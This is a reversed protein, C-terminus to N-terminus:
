QAAAKKGTGLIYGMLGGVLVWLVTSSIVDVIVLKFPYLNMSGWVYLDMSLSVPLTIILAATMGGIITKIGAWRHFIFAFLFAWLINNIIIVIMDPTEKMLGEYPIVNSEFYDMLLIGYILWGLLFAFITGAVAALIAKTSM